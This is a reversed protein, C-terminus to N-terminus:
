RQSCYLERGETAGELHVLRSCSSTWARCEEEVRAVLLMRRTAPQPVITSRSQRAVAPLGAIEPGSHRAEDGAPASEPERRVVAEVRITRWSDALVRHASKAFLLHSRAKHAARRERRSLVRLIPGLGLV